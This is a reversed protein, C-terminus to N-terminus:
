AIFSTRIIDFISQSGNCEIWGIYTKLRGFYNQYLYQCLLTKGVGEAGSILIHNREILRENRDVLLRKIKNIDKERGLCNEVSMKQPISLYVANNQDIPTKRKICKKFYSVISALLSTIAFIIIGNIIENKNQNIFDSM